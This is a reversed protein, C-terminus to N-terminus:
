AIKEVFYCEDAHGFGIWGEFGLELFAAGGVPGQLIVAPGM